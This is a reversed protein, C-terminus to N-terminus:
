MILLEVLFALKWQKQNDKRYGMTGSCCLLLLSLFISRLEGKTSVIELQLTSNCRM